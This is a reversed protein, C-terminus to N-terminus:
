IVIVNRFDGDGGDFVFSGTRPDFHECVVQAELRYTGSAGAVWASSSTGAPATFLIGGGWVVANNSDRAAVIVRASTSQPPCAWKVSVTLKKGFSVAPNILNGVQQVSGGQQVDNEYVGGALPRTIEIIAPAHGPHAAAPLATGAVAAALALTATLSRISKM